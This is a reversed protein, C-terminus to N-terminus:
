RRSRPDEKPTEEEKPEEVKPDEMKPDEVKPEEMKPEDQPIEEKSPEESAPVDDVKDEKEATWEEDPLAPQLDATEGAEVKDELKEFEAHNERLEQELEAMEVKGDAAADAAAGAVEGVDYGKELMAEAQEAPISYVESIAGAELDQQGELFYTNNQVIQNLEQNIVTNNETININYNVQQWVHVSQDINVTNYNYVNTIHNEQRYEHTHHEYYYAVDHWNRHCRRSYEWAILIDSCGWGRYFYFEVRARPWHCYTSVFYVTSSDYYYVSPACPYPPTSAVQTEVYVERHPRQDYVTVQCATLAALSLILIRRM